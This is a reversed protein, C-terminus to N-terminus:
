ARSGFPNSGKWAPQVLADKLRLIRLMWGHEYTAACTAYRMLRLALFENVDTVHSAAAITVPGPDGDVMVRLSTQLLEIATTVGENFAADGVAIALAFPLDDARCRDWYDRCFMARATPQDLHRIDVDPYARQSFGFHTVGGPDKPDDTVVDGGEVDPRQLWAWCAEFAPSM